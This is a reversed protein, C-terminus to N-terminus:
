TAPELFKRTSSDMGVYILMQDNNTFRLPIRDYTCLDDPFIPVRKDRREPDSLTM